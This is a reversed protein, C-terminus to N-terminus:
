RKSGVARGVHDLTLTDDWLVECIKACYEDMSKSSMAPMRVGGATMRVLMLLHYRYDRTWKPLKGQRLLEDIRFQCYAATYYPYPQHNEQFMRGRTSSLIEGYYRHTSHPEDLFMALFAKCERGLSVVRSEPVPSSLYQKSRREYYLRKRPEGAFSSFFEELTRHFPTLSEFAEVKVETQRNTARIVRNTVEPDDTVVLKVPLNVDPGISERRQYLVHSTQCGNVVQYDTIRFKAGVKTVSRAVITVGNNLLVFRGSTGPEDLTAAIERNM